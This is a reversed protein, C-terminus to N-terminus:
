LWGSGARVGVGVAEVSRKKISSLPAPPPGMFPSWILAPPLVTRPSTILRNAPGSWPNPFRADEQVAGTSIVDLAVEEARIGAARRSLAVFVVGDDCRPESPLEMPPVSAPRGCRSRPVGSSDGEEDQGAAVDNLAVKDARLLSPRLGSPLWDPRPKTPPPKADVVVRDAPRRRALGVDDGEVVNVADDASSELRMRCSWGRCSSGRCRLARCRDRRRRDSAWRRARRRHRAGVVQLVKRDDLGPRADRVAPRPCCASGRALEVAEGRRREVEVEVRIRGAGVEGPLKM